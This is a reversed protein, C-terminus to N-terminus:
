PMPEMVCVIVYFITLAQKWPTAFSWASCRLAPSFVHKLAFNIEPLWETVLCNFFMYILLRIILWNFKKVMRVM